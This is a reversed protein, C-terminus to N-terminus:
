LDFQSDAQAENGFGNRNTRFFDVHYQAALQDLIKHPLEDLRPLFLTERAALSLKQLEFDLAEAAARLKSDKLISPPLIKVLSVEQIRWFM